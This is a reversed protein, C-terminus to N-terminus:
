YICVLKGNNIPRHESCTHWLLPLLRTIDAMRVWTSMSRARKTQWVRIDVVAPEIILGMLLQVIPQYIIAFLHQLVVWHFIFALRRRCGFRALQGDDQLEYPVDGNPAANICTAAGGPGLSVGQTSAWQVSYLTCTHM